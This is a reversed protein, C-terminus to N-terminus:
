IEDHETSLAALAVAVSNQEHLSGVITVPTGKEVSNYLVTMHQNDLMVCGLTKAMFDNEAGHIEIQGGIGRLAPIRGRKREIVFRRRDEQNPYDLVLARYFQTQGHGLKGTVRYRGEPTAGDGQYHKERIGNFGLKVPYSLLKRGNKYLTLTREAKSVVITHKQHKKSWNITEKAMRQWEDIRDRDAYRGLEHSLLAAQTALSHAAKDCAEISLRYRQQNYLARAQKLLLDAEVPKQGLVLRGDINRVKDAMVKARGEVLGLRQEAARRLTKQQEAIRVLTRSGQEHLRRLALELDNSEWPWRIVDEESEVRAKLTMWEHAFKTYDEPAVEAARLEVLERDISEVADVAERPVAKTCGTLVGALMLAVAWLTLRAVPNNLDHRLM